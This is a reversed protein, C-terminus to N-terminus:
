LYFTCIGRDNRCTEFGLARCDFEHRKGDVCVIANKGDCRPPGSSTCEAAQEPECPRFPNTANCRKRSPHERCDFRHLGGAACIEAVHNDLCRTKHTQRDCRQGKGKCKIFSSSVQCLLDSQGCYVPTEVGFQCSTGTQTATDCRAVQDLGCQQACCAIPRATITPSCRRGIAACDFYVSKRDWSVIRSGDCVADKRCADIGYLFGGYCAGFSKCDTAIDGCGLFREILRVDPTELSIEVPFFATSFLEACEGPTFAVGGTCSASILCARAWRKPDKSDGLSLDPRPTATDPSQDRQSQDVFSRDLMAGRDVRMGADKAKTRALRTKCGVSVLSFLALLGLLEIRVFLGSRTMM